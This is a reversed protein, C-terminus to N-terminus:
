QQIESRPTAKFQHNQMIPKISNFRPNTHDIVAYASYTITPNRLEVVHMDRRISFLSGRAYSEPLLYLCNPRPDHFFRVASDAPSIYLRPTFGLLDALDSVLENQPDSIDSPVTVPYKRLIDPTVWIKREFVAKKTWAVLPEESIKVAFMGEEAYRELTTKESQCHYEVLIDLSGNKVLSRLDKHNEHVFTIKTPDLASGIDDLLSQYAECAVDYDFPPDRVVIEDSGQIHALKCRDLLIDCEEM